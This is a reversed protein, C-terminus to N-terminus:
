LAEPQFSFFKSSVARQKKKYFSTVYPSVSVPYNVPLFRSGLKEGAASFAEKEEEIKEKFQHAALDIPNGTLIVIQPTAVSDLLRVKVRM